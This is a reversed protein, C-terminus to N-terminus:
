PASTQGQARRPPRLRSSSKSSVTIIEAPGGPESDSFVGVHLIGTQWASGDLNTRAPLLIPGDLQADHGHVVHRDFAALEDGYRKWLLTREQQKDIPVGEDIGAHVYIRHRDHHMVPLTSMWEIHAPPVISLDIRGHEAHGYSLLTSAGGNRLWHDPARGGRIANVMMAEHNGKLCLWSPESMLREVVARSEPGRDVYDGLFLLRGPAMNAIEAVAADLLDIRGHLDPIVFTFTMSFTLSLRGCGDLSM